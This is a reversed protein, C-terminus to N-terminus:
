RATPMYQEVCDDFKLLDIYLFWNLVRFSYMYKDPQLFCYHYLQLQFAIFTINAFTPFNVFLSAISDCFSMQFKRLKGEFSSWIEKVYEATRRIIWNWRQHIHTTSGWASPDNATSLWPLLVLSVWFHNQWKPQGRQRICAGVPKFTSATPPM